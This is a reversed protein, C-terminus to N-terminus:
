VDDQKRNIVKSITFSLAKPLSLDKAREWIWYKLRIMHHLISESLNFEPRECDAVLQHNALVLTISHMFFLRIGPYCCSDYDHILLSINNPINGAIIYCGILTFKFILLILFVIIRSLIPSLTTTFFFWNCEIRWFYLLCQM